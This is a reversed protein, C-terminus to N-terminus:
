VHGLAQESGIAYSTSRALLRQSGPVTARMPAATTLDKDLCAPPTRRSTPRSVRSDPPQISRSSARPAPEAPAFTVVAPTMGVGATAYRVLARPNSAPMTIEADCLGYSSLPM